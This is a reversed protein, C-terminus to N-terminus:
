PSRFESPVSMRVILLSDKCARLPFLPFLVIAAITGLRPRSQQHSRFKSDVQDRSAISIKQLQPVFDKIFGRVLEDTEKETRGFVKFDKTIVAMVTVYAWQQNQGKLVRDRLDIWARELHSPTIDSHGIFWYYNISNITLQRGEDTRANRINHLRTTKLMGNATPLAITKSDTVTWGQAPLCREPRHISTNMDPGSMVISAYVQDGVANTYLKRAFKTDPGLIEREGQGIPQDSGQWDRVSDPLGLGIAAPQMRIDKPILFVSGMGLLLCSQLIALRKTIM